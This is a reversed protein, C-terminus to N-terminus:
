LIICWFVCISNYLVGKMVEGGQFSQACESWRGMIGSCGAMAHSAWCLNDSRLKPICPDPWKADASCRPNKENIYIRLSDLILLCIHVVNCINITYGHQNDEELELWWLPQGFYWTTIGAGNRQYKSSSPQHKGWGPEPVESDTRGIGKTLNFSFRLNCAEVHALLLFKPMLYCIHEVSDSLAEKPPFIKM